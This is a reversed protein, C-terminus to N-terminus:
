LCRTSLSFSYVGHFMLLKKQEGEVVNHGWFVVFSIIDYAKSWGTANIPNIMFQLFVTVESAQM